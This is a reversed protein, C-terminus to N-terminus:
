EVYNFIVFLLCYTALLQPTRQIPRLAIAIPGEVLETAIEQPNLLGQAMHKQLALHLCHSNPSM